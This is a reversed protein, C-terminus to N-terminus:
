NTRLAGWPEISMSRFAPITIATGAVIGMLLPVAIYTEPDLPPVGFLFRSILLAVAISVLVGAAVGFFVLRLGENLM